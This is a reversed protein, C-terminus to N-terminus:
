LSIPCAACCGLRQLKPSRCGTRGEPAPTVAPRIVFEHDYMRVTAESRKFHRRNPGSIPLRWRSPARGMVSDVWTTQGWQEATLRMGASRGAESAFHPAQLAFRNVPSGITSVAFVKSLCTSRLSIGSITSKQAGQHPGHRVIAGIKSLAAFSSSGRARKALTLTSSSGAIAARKPMRPIGVKIANSFPLTALCCEPKTSRLKRLPRARKCSVRVRDGAGEGFSEDFADRIAKGTIEGGVNSAFLGQAKSANLQDMLAIAQSFYADASDARACSGHKIWEHRELNSQTGPM